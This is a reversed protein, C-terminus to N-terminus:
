SKGEQVVARQSPALHQLLAEIVPRCHKLLDRRARFCMLHVNAPTTQLAEAVEPVTRGKVALAILAEARRWQDKPLCARIMSVIEEEAMRVEIELFSNPAALDDMGDGADMDDSSQILEEEFRDAKGRHRYYDVVETHIIASVYGLFGHPERVRSLNQYVRIQVKQSVDEADQANSVRAYVRPYIWHWLEEFARPQQQSGDELCAALLIPCYAYTVALDIANVATRASGRGELLAHRVDALLKRWNAADGDPTALMWNRQALVAAIKTDYDFM